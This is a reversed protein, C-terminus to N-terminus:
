LEQPGDSALNGCIDYYPSRFILLIWMEADLEPHEPNHSIKLYM